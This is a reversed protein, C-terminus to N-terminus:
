LVLLHLYNSILYGVYYSVSFVRVLFTFLLHLMFIISLKLSFKCYVLLYLYQIHDLYMNQKNLSVPRACFCTLITCTFYDHGHYM